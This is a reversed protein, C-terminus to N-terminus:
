APNSPPLTLSNLSSSEKDTIEMEKTERVLSNERLEAETKNAERLRDKFAKIKSHVDVYRNIYGHDEM